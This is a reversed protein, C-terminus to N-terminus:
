SMRVVSESPLEGFGDGTVVSRLIELGDVLRPGPRSFYATGDVAYVEGRRVATM